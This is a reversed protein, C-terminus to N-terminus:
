AVLAWRMASITQHSDILQQMFRAPEIVETELATVFDASVQYGDSGCEGNPAGGAGSAAAWCAQEEALTTAPPLGVHKRFVDWFGDWASYEFMADVVLQRPEITAARAKLQEWRAQEFPLWIRDKLSATADAYETVFGQGAAEDAAEIVV